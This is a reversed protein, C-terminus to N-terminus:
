GGRARLPHAADHIGQQLLLGALTNRGGASGTGRGMGKGDGRCCRRGAAAQGQVAAEEQKGQEDVDARLQHGEGGPALQREALPQLPQAADRQHRGVEEEGREGGGEVQPPAGGEHDYLAEYIKGVGEQPLGFTCAPRVWPPSRRQARVQAQRSGGGWHTRRGGQGAGLLPSRTERRCAGAAGAAGQAPMWRTRSCCALGPHSPAAQSKTLTRQPARRNATIKAARTVGSCIIGIKGISTSCAYAIAM